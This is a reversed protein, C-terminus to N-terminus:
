DTSICVSFRFFSWAKTMAYVRRKSGYGHKRGEKSVKRPSRQAYDSTNLQFTCFPLCHISNLSGGVLPRFIGLSCYKHYTRLARRTRRFVGLSSGVPPESGVCRAHLTKPRVNGVGSLQPNPHIGLDTRLGLQHLLFLVALRTLLASYTM